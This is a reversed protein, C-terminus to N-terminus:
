GQPEEWVCRADACAVDKMVARSEGDRMRHPDESDNIVVVAGFRYRLPVRFWTTRIKRIEGAVDKRHRKMEVALLNRKHVGREHIIVDPRKRGFGPKVM